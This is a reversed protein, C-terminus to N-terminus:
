LPVIVASLKHIVNTRVPPSQKIHKNAYKYLKKLSTIANNSSKFDLFSFDEILSEISMM